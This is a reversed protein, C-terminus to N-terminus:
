PAVLVPDRQLDEDDRTYALFLTCMEDDTSEGWTIDKPPKHPNNPNTDTNDFYAEMDIRTRRPLRLPTKFRYSPQWRFDWNRVDVLVIKSGDPLTATARMSTGLNHMHPTVSLITIDGPVWAMTEVKHDKAGAPIRFTADSVDALHLTKTIPEKAFFLAVQSSDTQPEGNPHYHVEMVIDAGKPLKIAVGSPLRRAYHGPTWGGLQGATPSYGPGNGPTPNLYGPGGKAEAELKRAQGTTDLFVSLHHVTAKNGPLYEVGSVWRDESFNTPIVFCRYIDRSEAPIPFPKPMAYVIDPKGLQWGDKFTPSVPKKGKGRPTGGTSWTALMDKEGDSLSPDDHYPSTAATTQAFWPPMKHAQVQQNIPTAWAKAREYSDLPMPGIQDARHCGVCRRNLIPAIDENYTFASTVAEPKTDLGQVLCGAAQTVHPSVPKGDLLATLADRVYSHTVKDPEPNDDVRGRYVVRGDAGCVAVQPTVTAGLRRALDLGRVCPFTLTQAKAQAQVDADTEIANPYVAVFRVGRAAFDDSLQRLRGAYRRSIPCSTSLFTIVTAGGAQPRLKVPGVNLSPVTMDPVILSAVPTATTKATKKAPTKAPRPPAALGLGLLLCPVICGVVWVGWGRKVM